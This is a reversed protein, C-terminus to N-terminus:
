LRKYAWFSDNEPAPSQDHSSGAYNLDKTAHVCIGSHEHWVQRASAEILYFDIDLVAFRREMHKFYASPMGLVDM